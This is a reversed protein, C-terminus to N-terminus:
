KELLDTKMHCCANADFCNLITATYGHRFPNYTGEHHFNHFKITNATQVIKLDRSKEKRMNVVTYSKLANWLRCFRMLGISFSVVLLNRHLSFDRCWDSKVLALQKHSLKGTVATIRVIGKKKM